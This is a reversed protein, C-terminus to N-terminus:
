NETLGVERDLNRSKILPKQIQEEEVETTALILNLQPCSVVFILSKFLISISIYITSLLCGLVQQEATM